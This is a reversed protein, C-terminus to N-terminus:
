AFPFFMSNYKHISRGTANRKHNSDRFVNEIVSVSEAVGRIVVRSGSFNPIWANEMECWRATETVSKFLSKELREKGQLSERFKQVSVRRIVRGTFTRWSENQLLVLGLFTIGRWFLPPMKQHSNKKKIWGSRDICTQAFGAHWLHLKDWERERLTSGAMSRFAQKWSCSKWIITLVSTEIERCFSAAGKSM